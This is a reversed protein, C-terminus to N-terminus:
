LMQKDVKDGDREWTVTDAIQLLREDMLYKVHLRDEFADRLQCLLGELRSPELSELTVEEKIKRLMDLENRSVVKM